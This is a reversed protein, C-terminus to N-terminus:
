CNAVYFPMSQASHVFPTHRYDGSFGQLLYNLYYWGTQCPAAITFPTFLQNPLTASTTRRYLVWEDSPISSPDTSVARWISLTTHHVAPTVDCSINVTGVLDPTVGSQVVHLGTPQPYLRDHCEYAPNGPGVPGKGAADATAVPASAPASNFISTWTQQSGAGGGSQATCAALALASAVATTSAVVARSSKRM